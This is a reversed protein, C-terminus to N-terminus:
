SFCLTFANDRVLRDAFLTLYQRQPDDTKHNWRYYLDLRIKSLSLESTRITHLTRWRSTQGVIFYWKTQVKRPRKKEKNEDKRKIYNITFLLIWLSQIQVTSRQRRFRGSKWSGVVVTCCFLVILMTQQIQVGLKQNRLRGHVCGSWM